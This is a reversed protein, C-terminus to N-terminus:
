DYQNLIVVICTYKQSILQFSLSSVYHKNIGGNDGYNAQATGTKGAMSFKLIM